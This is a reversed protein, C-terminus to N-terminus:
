GSLSGGGLLLRGRGFRGGCWGWGECMLIGGVFM